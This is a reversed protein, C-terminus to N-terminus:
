KNGDLERAVSRLWRERFAPHLPSAPINKGNGNDLFKGSEDVQKINGDMYKIMLYHGLDKWEKFLTQASRFLM